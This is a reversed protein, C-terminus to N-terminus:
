LITILLKGGSKQKLCNYQSLLGYPTTLITLGLGNVRKGKGKCFKQLQKFSITSTTSLSSYYIIDKIAPKDQFYKLFVNIQRDEVKFGKIYGEANLLKLVKICLNSRNLLVTQKHAKHGNKIRIISENLSRTM